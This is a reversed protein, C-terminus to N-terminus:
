TILLKELYLDSFASGKIRDYKALVFHCLDYSKYIEHLIVALKLLKEPVLKDLQIFDKVYIVDAWLQQSIQSYPRNNLLLPKFSRGQLYLFKHFQFGNSRLFLDIDAFLPQNKYIPVFEVETHIIVAQKLIRDANKFVDLEAGQIDIKIFDVDDPLEKIDDLRKTQVKIIELVEMLNGLNQFLNIIAKDPEYLSSTMSSNTIYFKGTEGNGIFYPLFKYKNDFLKNLKDCEPKHPEFGTVNCLYQNLLSNYVPTSNEMLMAGIDIIEITPILSNLLQKM